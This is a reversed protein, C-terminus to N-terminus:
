RFLRWSPINSIARLEGCRLHGNDPVYMGRDPADQYASHLFSVADGWRFHKQAFRAFTEFNAVQGLGLFERGEDLGAEFGDRAKAYAAVVKSNFSAYVRVRWAHGHLPDATRAGYWGYYETMPAATILRFPPSNLIDEGNRYNKVTM